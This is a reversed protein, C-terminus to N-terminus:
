YKIFRNQQGNKDVFKSNSDLIGNRSKVGQNYADQIATKFDKKLKRDDGARSDLTLKKSKVQVCLAKDGLVCLVDIETKNEGKKLPINVSRFTRKEGFVKLLYEFTIEEFVDGRNKGLTERYSEDEDFMWYHPAEYIALFLLYLNLIFYREGDLKIIPKGNIINLGGIGSFETNVNDGHTVSFNDFFSDADKEDSLDEKKIIFLDLMEKYISALDEKNMLKEPNPKKELFISKIKLIINKANEINFNKNKQLWRKDYKYRKPLLNLYQIDYVGDGVYFMPEVLMKADNFLKETPKYSRGKKNQSEFIEKIKEFFIPVSVAKHLEEMQLKSKKYLFDMEIQTDPVSFDIENQVLFGLLLSIERNNLLNYTDLKHIEGPQYTMDNLRMWCLVYIFGKSRVLKKIDEYIEEIPRVEPIKTEEEM